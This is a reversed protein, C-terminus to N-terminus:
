RRRNKCVRVPVPKPTEVRIGTAGIGVAAGVATGVVVLNVIWSAMNVGYEGM